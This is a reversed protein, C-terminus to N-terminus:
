SELSKDEESEENGSYQDFSIPEIIPTTKNEDFLKQIERFDEVKYIERTYIVAEEELELQETMWLGQGFCNSSNFCDFFVPHCSRITSPTMDPNYYLEYKVIGAEGKCPINFQDYEIHVDLTNTETVSIKNIIDQQILKPAYSTAPILRMFDYEPTSIDSFKHTYIYDGDFEYLTFKPFGNDEPTVQLVGKDNLIYMELQENNANNVYIFNGIVMVHNDKYCSITFDTGLHSIVVEFDNETKKNANEYTYKIPAPPQVNHKREAVTNKYLEMIKDYDFLNLRSINIELDVEEETNPDVSHVDVKYRSGEEDIYLDKNIMYGINDKTDMYRSSAVKNVRPDIITEMVSVCEGYDELYM